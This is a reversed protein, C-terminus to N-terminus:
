PCCILSARSLQNRVWPLQLPILRTEIHEQISDFAKQFNANDREMKNILIIKPLKFQDSYQLAMETGVELGAVSDVLILAGDAVSMASIVEGIFDTYGPTDFLNLKKDKYEIPVVSPSCLFAAGPKKKM